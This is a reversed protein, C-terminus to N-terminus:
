RIYSTEAAVLPGTTIADSYIPFWSYQYSVRVTVPEGGASDWVYPGTGPTTESGGCTAASIGSYPGFQEKTPTGAVDQTIWITITFNGPTWDPLSSAIQNSALLCPDDGVLKGRNAGISESAAFTAFALQQYSYLAMVTSVMGTILILYVPLAFALEVLASGSNDSRILEVIRHGFSAPEVTGSRNRLLGCLISTGRLKM